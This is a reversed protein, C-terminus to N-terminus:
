LLGKRINSLNETMISIFTAGAEREQASTNHCSHLVLVEANNASAIERAIKPDSFEECFIVKIDNEKVYDSLAAIDQVSPESNASCSDYASKYQINYRRTLYGVAFRGGFILDKKQGEAFLASYEEDLATLANTFNLLNETFYEENEPSLLILEAAITACMKKANDFDLWIHPDLSHEHEHEEEGHSFLDINSSVDLVKVNGGVSSAINGAWGEMADGTYIFLDSKSIKAMDAPSPDYLHSEQGAPLLLTVDVKDGGIQRAFDYQPFLTATIRIKGESVNETSCGTLPLLMLILLLSILKKM